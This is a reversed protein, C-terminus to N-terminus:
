AKGGHDSSMESTDTESLSELQVFLMDHQLSISIRSTTKCNPTFNSTKQVTLAVLRNILNLALHVSRTVRLKEKRMPEKIVRRGGVRESEM